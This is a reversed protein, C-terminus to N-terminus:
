RSSKPRCSGLAMEFANVVGTMVSGRRARRSGRRAAARCTRRMGIVIRSTAVSEIRARDRIYTRRGAPARRRRPVRAPSSSASPRTTPAIDIDFRGATKGLGPMQVHRRLARVFGAGTYARLDRVPVTFGTPAGKLKPDHSLSLHTKAMCIPLEGLGLETFREIKARAAPLFDVGAAGYVKRRSRRSRRRSRRTTRTSRSSRRQAANTAECSRRRSSAGRGAGGDSSARTSRRRGPAASSRSSACASSSRSRTARSANVRSSARQPRVGRVIELHRELNQRRRARRSTAAATISSRACPRSSCSRARRSTARRPLRHRPVEGDRHRVGFGGETVVYDGLKLAIRTARSRATATRSTRSRARTSSRPSARSRRSSTRSSRTRSCCPWRAPARPDARRHRARRRADLRGHDRRPTRAPRRPRAGARPDGHGRLRRHHRLRDRAPARQDRRRPRRHHQRLARDNM